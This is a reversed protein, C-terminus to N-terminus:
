STFACIHHKAANVSSSAVHQASGCLRDTIYYYYQQSFKIAPIRLYSTKAANVPAPSFAVHQASGCLRGVPPLM